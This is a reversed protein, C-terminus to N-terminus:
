TTSVQSELSQLFARPDVRAAALLDADSPGATQRAQLTSPETEPSSHRRSM